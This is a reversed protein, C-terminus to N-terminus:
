DVRPLAYSGQWGQGYSPRARQWLHHRPLRWFFRVKADDLRCDREKQIMQKAIPDDESAWRGQQLHEFTRSNGCRGVLLTGLAVVIAMTTIQKRM